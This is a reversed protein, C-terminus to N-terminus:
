RRKGKPHRFGHDFGTFAAMVYLIGMGVPGILEEFSNRFRITNETGKNINNLRDFRHKEREQKVKEHEQANYSKVDVVSVNIKM